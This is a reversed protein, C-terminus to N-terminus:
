YVWQSLQISIYTIIGAFYLLVAVLEVIMLPMDEQIYGAWTWLLSGVFGLLINLPYVNFSTLAIGTLCLITGLWKISEM